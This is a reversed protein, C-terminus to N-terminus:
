NMVDKVQKFIDQETIEMIMDSFKEVAKTLPSEPDIKNAIDLLNFIRIPADAVGARAIPDSSDKLERYMKYETKATEALTILIVFVDKETLEITRKKEEM